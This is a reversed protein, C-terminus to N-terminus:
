GFSEQTEDRPTALTGPWEVELLCFEQRRLDQIQTFPLSCLPGPLHSQGHFLFPQRLGGSLMIGAPHAVYGPDGFSSM